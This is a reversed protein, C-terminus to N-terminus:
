SRLTGSGAALIATAASQGANLDGIPTGSRVPRGGIEGTLSMAGSLAQVIMDYAPRTAYPGDQGFGSISCYVIRPNIQSVTEYDVGLRDAVDNRMNMFFVDCTKLLEYANARDAPDKMNLTLGRKNMNWSIYGISNGNISPPVGPIGTGPRDPSTPNRPTPPEIHIVDAGMAGLQM